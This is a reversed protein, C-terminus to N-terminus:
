KAGAASLSDLKRSLLLVQRISVGCLNELKLPAFKPIKVLNWVGWFMGDWGGWAPGEGLELFCSFAFLAGAQSRSSRPRSRAMGMVKPLDMLQPSQLKRVLLIPMLIGAVEPHFLQPCICSPAVSFCLWSSVLWHPVPRSARPGKAKTGAGIWGAWSARRFARLSEQVWLAGVRDM